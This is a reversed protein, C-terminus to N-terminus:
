SRPRRERMVQVTAEDVRVVADLARAVAATVPEPFGTAPPGAAALARLEAVTERLYVRAQVLERLVDGADRSVPVLVHQAVAMVQRGAWSAPSMGERGAALRVVELEADNFSLNM